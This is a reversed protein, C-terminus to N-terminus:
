NTWCTLHSHFEETKSILFLVWYTSAAENSFHWYFLSISFILLLLFPWLIYILVSKDFMREIYLQSILLNSKIRQIGSKTEIDNVTFYMCCITCTYLWFFTWKHVHVIYWCCLELSFQIFNLSFFAHQM